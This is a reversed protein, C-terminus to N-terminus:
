DGRRDCGSEAGGAAERDQRHDAGSLPPGSTRPPRWAVDEAYRSRVILRRVSGRGANKATWDLDQLDKATLSKVALNSGPLNLGQRSRSAPRSADGEVPGSGAAVDKVIM